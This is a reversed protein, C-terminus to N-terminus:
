VNSLILVLGGCIGVGDSDQTPVQGRPELQVQVAELSVEILHSLPCGNKRVSVKSKVVGQSVRADYLGFSHPPHKLFERQLLQQKLRIGWVPQSMRPLEEPKDVRNCSMAVKRGHDDKPDSLIVSDSEEPHFPPSYHM